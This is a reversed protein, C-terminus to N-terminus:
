DESDSGKVFLFNKTVPLYRLPFTLITFTAYLERSVNAFCCVTLSSISPRVEVIGIDISLLETTVTVKFSWPKRTPSRKCIFIWASFLPLAVIM